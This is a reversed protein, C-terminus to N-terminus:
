HIPRDPVIVKMDFTKVGLFLFHNELITNALKRIKTTPVM